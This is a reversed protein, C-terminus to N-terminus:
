RGRKKDILEMVPAIEKAQPYSKKLERLIAMAEAWDGRENQAVAYAYGYARRWRPPAKEYAEKLLPLAQLVEKEQALWRGRVYLLESEKPFKKLAQAALASAIAGKDKFLLARVWHVYVLSSQPFRRGAEDFLNYAHKEKGRYAEIDALLVVGQVGDARYQAGAKAELLAREMAGQFKPGMKLDLISVLAAIRVSRVPDTLLEGVFQQREDNGLRSSAQAAVRRLLVDDSKKALFLAQKFKKELSHEDLLAWRALASARLLPSRSEDFFLEGLLLPAGALGQAASRFAPAVGVPMEGREKFAHELVGQAWSSGRKAHCQDCPQPGGGDLSLDPRPISFRHDRRPVLGSARSKPMHCDVCLPVEEVSDGHLHHRENEYKEENHCSSCLEEVPNRLVGSHPNHCDSCVVGAHAMSSQVFEGMTHAGAKGSGEPSYLTEELLSLAYRDDFANVTALVLSDIIAPVAKELEPAPGWDISNSHCPACSAIEDTKEPPASGVGILRATDDKAARFWRRSDHSILATSFGFFEINEPWKELEQYKKAFHVHRSAPGHCAECSVHKEGITTKYSDSKFEYNKKVNTSHCAVCRSKESEVSTLFHASGELAETKKEQLLHSEDHPSGSHAKVQDEHCPTCAERGLYNLDEISGVSGLEKKDRRVEQKPKKKDCAGVSTLLSGGLILLGFHSLRRGTFSSM